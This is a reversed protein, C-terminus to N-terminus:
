ARSEPTVLDICTIEGRSGLRLTPGWTGTGPSVYLTTADHEYRGCIRPFARRVLWNFLHALGYGIVFGGIGAEVLGLAQISTGMAGDIMLVEGATLKADLWDPGCSRILAM